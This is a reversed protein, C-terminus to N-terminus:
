QTVTQSSYEAILQAIAAMQRETAQNGATILERRRSTDISSIHGVEPVIVIDARDREARMSASKNDVASLTLNNELLAWFSSLSTIAPLINRQTSPAAAVDVAIVIDAGLSRASDVPVLSVVGGDIYKKGVGQPIRPAIFINPVSCSAQVALGADGQTFVVKQLTNKEAAVAGFRIPFDEIPRGDVHSNIFNKLKIGEIFGQNSLTFDTLASDPTTLALQELKSINYGSAYLSGVLSGVSTGVVISPTIGNDELAKIVGVHAFGRAGGGGLVLAVKPSKTAPELVTPASPTTNCASLVIAVVMLISTRLLVLFSPNRPLVIATM